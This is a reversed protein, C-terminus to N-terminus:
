YQNLVLPRVTYDRSVATGSDSFVTVTLTYEKGSDSSTCAIRVSKGKYYGKVLVPSNNRLLVGEENVSYEIRASGMIIAIKSGLDELEPKATSELLDGVIPNATSDILSNYEAFDNARGYVRLMSILMTSVAATVLSFIVITVLLETLTMGKKDKLRKKM